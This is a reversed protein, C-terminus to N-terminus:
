EESFDAEGDGIGDGKMAVVLSRNVDSVVGDRTSSCFVNVNTKMVNMLTNFFFLDNEGSKGRAINHSISEGLWKGKIGEVTM